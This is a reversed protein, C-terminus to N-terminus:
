PVRQAACQRVQRGKAKAALEREARYLAIRKPCRPGAISGKHVLVIRRHGFGPVDDVAVVDHWISGLRARLGPRRDLLRGTWQDRWTETRRRQRGLQPAFHQDFERQSAHTLAHTVPRWTPAYEQKDFYEFLSGKKIIKQMCDGIGPRSSSTSPLEPREIVPWPVAHQDVRAAVHNDARREQLDVDDFYRETLGDTQRDTQRDIQRDLRRGAQRDAQRKSAWVPVQWDKRRRPLAHPVLLSNTHALVYPRRLGWAAALQCPKHGGVVQV